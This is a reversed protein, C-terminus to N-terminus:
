DPREGSPLYRREGSVPDFWVKLIQGSQHDVERESTLQWVGRRHRKKALYGADFLTGVLILGAFLLLPFGGGDLASAQLFLGGLAALVAIALAVARGNPTM